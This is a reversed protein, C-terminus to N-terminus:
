IKGGVVGDDVCSCIFRWVVEVQIFYVEVGDSVFFYREIVGCVYRM